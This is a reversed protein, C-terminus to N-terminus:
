KKVTVIFGDVNNGSITFSETKPVPVDTEKTYYIEYDVNNVTVFLHKQTFEFNKLYEIYEEFCFQNEQIVYSHPIGVYRFHWPEYNIETISKKNEPYRLIFGYRYCHNNIWKKKGDGTYDEYGGNNPYIGLDFALGSHHESYGPKAVWAAAEVANSNKIENNLLTQQYEKTRYGSTIGVSTENEAAEFDKMLENFRLIPNERLLVNKDKVKYSNIKLDYVSFLKPDQEFYYQYDNNLLILEGYHIDDKSKKMIEYQDNNINAKTEKFGYTTETSHLVFSDEETKKKMNPIIYVIGVVMVILFLIMIADMIIFKIRRGKKRKRKTM